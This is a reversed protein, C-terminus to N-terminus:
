NSPNRDLRRDGFDAPGKQHYYQLRWQRPPFKGRPVLITTWNTLNSGCRGPLAHRQYSTWTGQDKGETRRGDSRTPLQMGGTPTGLDRKLLLSFQSASSRPRALFCRQKLSCSNKVDFPKSMSDEYQITAKMDDHFPRIKIHLKLPLWNESHFFGLSQHPRHLCCYLTEAAWQMKETYLQRLSFIMDQVTDKLHKAQYSCGCQSEPYVWWLVESPGYVPVRNGM